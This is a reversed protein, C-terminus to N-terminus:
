ARAGLLLLVILGIGMVLRYWIFPATSRNQLYRLLFHICLFGTLGSALFGLAFGLQQDAPIGERLGYLSKVGAAVVIPTSLLFSFRAATERKMGFFLGATITSGSRSVGPILAFAQALGVGIAHPLRIQTMNLRHSGRVEAFWLLLGMVIMMVAIILLGTRLNQADHFTAEISSELLAGAIAAPVTGLIILWVLRREPDDGIGREGVSRFLAAILRRWDSWFYALVAILTGMHLSVDFQMSNIAQDQWGFLWPVIILHASSSIPLFETLGQVIGLILAQLPDL